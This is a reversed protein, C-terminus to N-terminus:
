KYVGSYTDKNKTMYLNKLITKLKEHQVKIKTKSIDLNVLGQNIKDSYLQHKYMTTCTNAKFSMQDSAGNSRSGRVTIKVTSKDAFVEWHRANM